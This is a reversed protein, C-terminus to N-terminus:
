ELADRLGDFDLYDEIFQKRLLSKPVFENYKGRVQIDDPLPYDYLDPASRLIDYIIAELEETTGSFVVELFVASIWPLTNKIKRHLLAYHLTFLQRTGVWPFVAFKQNSLPTV